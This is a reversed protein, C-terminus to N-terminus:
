IYKIAELYKDQIFILKGNCCQEDYIRVFDCIGSEDYMTTLAADFNKDDINHKISNTIKEFTNWRIQNPIKIYYM